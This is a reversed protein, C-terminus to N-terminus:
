DADSNEDIERIVDEKVEKTVICEVGENVCSHYVTVVFISLEEMTKFEFMLSNYNKDKIKLKYM